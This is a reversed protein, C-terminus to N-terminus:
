SSRGPRVFSPTRRRTSPLIPARSIARRKISEISSRFIRNADRAADVL